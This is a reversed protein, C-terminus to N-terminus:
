QLMYRLDVVQKGSFLGKKERLEGFATAIVLVDAAAVAGELTDLYKVKLEPFTAAFRENAVPDYAVIDTLGARALRRVVMASPTDRVDDSDPKFALGLIAVRCGNQVVKLVRKAAFESVFENVALNAELLAMPLGLSQGLSKLALTDKPLCYGGYGCGPYAYSSMAAPSGNWRRDEHLIRFSRQVDVDDCREAFMAMENSFSILTSLLTNSLYKIFEATTPSVEHLPANFPAYIQRFVAFTAEEAAGVVIRDPQTFDEWAKGERLFEPNSALSFRSHEGMLLPQLVKRVTTPPVTSKVAIVCQESGGIRLISRVAAEVQSLDAQGGYGVPTGVCIFVVRSKAVAEELPVDLHFRKGLEEALVVDLGPEHFPLKGGRLLECRDRNLEIGFTQFGRSAFGLASTLGVFGLGLVTIM